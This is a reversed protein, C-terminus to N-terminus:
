CHKMIRNMLEICSEEIRCKQGFSGMSAVINYREM